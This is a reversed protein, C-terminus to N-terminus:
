RMREIWSWWEDSVSRGFASRERETALGRVERATMGIKRSFARSFSKPHTFGYSEAIEAIGRHRQAPDSLADHCRLLRQDQVHSAFGGRPEFLYYLKRPSIGFAAAVTEASMDPASLHADVHRLIAGFLSSAVGQANEEAPRGNLTAAALEITPRVIAEADQQTMRSASRFLAELHNHLLGVLPNSGSIISMHHGEPVKLYPALLRRPVILNINDFDTVGTSLPMALDSVWLDGPRTKEDASGDRHGCSGRTYFQLVIHDLDDREIRRRSRDFSQAGSSCAGLALEGVMFAEVRAHFTEEATQRPRVDFMVGISEQWASIAAKTPLGSTDLVSSPLSPRANM